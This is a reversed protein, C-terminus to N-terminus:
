SRIQTRPIPRPDIMRTEEIIDQVYKIKVWSPKM